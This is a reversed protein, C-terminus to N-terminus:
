INEDASPQSPTITLLHDAFARENASPEREMGPESTMFDAM